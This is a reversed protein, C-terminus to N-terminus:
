SLANSIKEYVDANIVASLDKATEDVLRTALQQVDQSFIVGLVFSIFVVRIVRAKVERLWAFHIKCNGSPLM